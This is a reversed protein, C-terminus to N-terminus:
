SKLKQSDITAKEKSSGIKIYLSNPSFDPDLEGFGNWYFEAKQHCSECVSIGNAAVYGGNPMENRNSIHHADLEELLSEKLNSHFKKHGDGGQRDKGPKGCCKCRYKDRSFVATRFENRTNKKSM